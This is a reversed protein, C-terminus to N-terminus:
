KSSYEAEPAPDDYNYLYSIYFFNDHVNNECIMDM